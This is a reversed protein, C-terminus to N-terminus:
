GSDPFDGEVLRLTAVIEGRVLELRRISEATEGAQGQLRLITEELAVLMRLLREV